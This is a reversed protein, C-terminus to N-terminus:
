AAQPLEAEALESIKWRKDAPTGDLVSKFIRLWRIANAVTTFERNNFTEAMRLTSETLAAYKEPNMMHESIIDAGRKLDFDSRDFDLIFGSQGEVVQLPMGGRNAVVMPVKHRIFDSIRTECGEAESTQMGFVAAPEAEGNAPSPYMLANMAKYNHKLRMLIIGDKEDPYEERRLEMMQEYMPIGSPDDVSGNGVIIVQPLDAEAVGSARMQKRTRVGLEMALHMGKSEDFRAVLIIRRRTPDVLEQLDESRGAAASELNKITIEGNIFTIGNRIEIDTLERNLDDFPEVTAPAFFTKDEMGPYIFAEVPHAVIADADRIGCEDLLYTALEGQPTAPDAMLKNSTDIHNRSILKFKQNVTQLGRILPAPQPDDPIIIDATLITEQKLLVEANQDNWRKHVAKGAATIRVDPAMRRQSINHMLKTFDFPNEDTPNKRGNMVYWHADVGFQRLMHILPPRLMAVGGGELTPNIFVVRKGRLGEAQKQLLAMDEPAAIRRYDELTIDSEISVEYTDPNRSVRFAETSRDTEAGTEIPNTALVAFAALNALGLRAVDVPTNEPSFHPTTDEFLVSTNEPGVM